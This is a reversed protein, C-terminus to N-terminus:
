LLESLRSPLGDRLAQVRHSNDFDTTPGLGGLSFLFWHLDQLVTPFGFARAELSILDSNRVLVPAQPRDPRHRGRHLWGRAPCKGKRLKQKVPPDSRLYRLVRLTVQEQKLCKDLAM